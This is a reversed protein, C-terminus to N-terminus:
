KIDCCDVSSSININELYLKNDGKASTKIKESFWYQENQNNYRPLEEETKRDFYGLGSYKESSNRAAHGM